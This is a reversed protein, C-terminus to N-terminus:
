LLKLGLTDWFGSLNLAGIGIWPAAAIAIGSIIKGKGEEGHEMKHGGEICKAICWLFAVGVVFWTALQIADVVEQPLKVVTSPVLTLGLSSWLGTAKFAAVALWPAVGILVGSYLKKKGDEGRDLMDAGSICKVICVVASLAIIILLGYSINDALNQPLSFAALVLPLNANM